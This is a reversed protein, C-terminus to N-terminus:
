QQLQMGSSKWEYLKNSRCCQQSMGINLYLSPCQLGKHSSSFNFDNVAQTSVELGVSSVPSCLGGYLDFWDLGKQSVNGQHTQFSAASLSVSEIPNHASPLLTVSLPINILLGQM